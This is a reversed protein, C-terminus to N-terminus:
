LYNDNYEFQNKNSSTKDSSINLAHYVPMILM